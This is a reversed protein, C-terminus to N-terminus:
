DPCSKAFICIRHGANVMVVKGYCNPSVSNNAFHIKNGKHTIDNNLVFLFSCTHKDYVKGRRDAEDQSIIEGCYESISENKRCLFKSLSGGDQSMLHHCCYTSKLTGSFVATMAPCTRATGTTLLEVHSVSTLTVSESLWTAHVNSSTVNHKAGTELFTTKPRKPQIKRCHAVWLQQTRKKKRLPSVHQCQVRQSWSSELCRPELVVEGWM